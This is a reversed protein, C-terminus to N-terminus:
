GMLEKLLLLGCVFSVWIMASALFPGCEKAPM